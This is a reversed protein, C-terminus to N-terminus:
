CCSGDGGRFLFKSLCNEPSNDAWIQLQERNKQVVQQYDKPQKQAAVGYLQLLSLSQYFCHLVPQFQGYLTNSFEAAAVLM